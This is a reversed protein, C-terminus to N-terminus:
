TTEEKRGIIINSIRGLRDIKRLIPLLVTPTRNPAIVGLTIEAVVRLGCDTYLKTLYHMSYRLGKHERSVILLFLMMPLYNRNPEVSVVFRRSVRAMESIARQPNDLHHLLNACFVVDFSNDNFPIELASGLVLKKSPNLQLMRKSLDLGTTDAIHGLHWTFFGNGCGVDLVTTERTMETYKAIIAIKPIVFARVSPHDPHRRNGTRNWYDTETGRM